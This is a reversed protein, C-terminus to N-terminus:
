TTSGTVPSAGYRSREAVATAGVPISDSQSDLAANRRPSASIGRSSFATGPVTIRMTEAEGSIRPLYFNRRIVFFYFFRNFFRRDHSINDVM